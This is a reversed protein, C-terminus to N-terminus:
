KYKCVQMCLYFRIRLRILEVRSSFGEVKVEVKVLIFSSYRLSLEGTILEVVNERKRSQVIFNFLVYPTL